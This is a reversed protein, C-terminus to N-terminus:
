CVLMIDGTRWTKECFQEEKNKKNRKEERLEMIDALRDAIRSIKFNSLSGQKTEGGEEAEHHRKALAAM